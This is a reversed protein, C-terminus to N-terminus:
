SSVRKRGGSNIWFRRTRDNSLKVSPETVMWLFTSKLVTKPMGNEDIIDVFRSKVDLESCPEDGLIEPDDHEHSDSSNPDYESIENMYEYTDEDDNFEGEYDEEDTDTDTDNFQLRSDFQFADPTNLINTIGFWEAKRIADSKARSIEINIEEDTPLKYIITKGHRKNPIKIGELNLKCYAIDTAVEVRGIMHTVELLSFNIKTYNTTGMSRLTRFFNECTQSNFLRILFQEPANRERFLKVFKILSSANLETCMYANYTIFNDKVNYHPSAQIFNRWIRIFFVSRWMLYIRELPKLDCDSFSKAIDRFVELYQITAESQPVRDRLAKLVRDDTVKEFSKYNMRDVPNVDMYTLGHVSKQVNKVLYNLHSISVNHTGMPLIIGRKLLRNRAKGCLHITDQTVNINLNGLSAEYVM